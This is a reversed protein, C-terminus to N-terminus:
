GISSRFPAPTSKDLGAGTSCAIFTNSLARSMSSPSRYRGVVPMRCRADPLSDSFVGYLGDFPQYKPIYLKKELPLSFPSIPFGNLLWSEAYEFAVLRGQYLALTGVRGSGIHVELTRYSEM